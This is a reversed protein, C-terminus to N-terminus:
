RPSLFLDTAAKGILKTSAADLTGGAVGGVLPLARGLKVLGMRGTKALLRIKVLYQIKVLAQEGLNALVRQTLGEGPQLGAERLLDPAGRGTLCAFALAKVAETRPNYGGLLAVAVIMRLQLLLVSSLNAPVALPLTLLGGLGTVFGSTACNAMQRNVLRDAAERVSGAKTRSEEALEYASGFPGGGKLAKEYAWELVALLVTPNILTAM